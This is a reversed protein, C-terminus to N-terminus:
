GKIFNSGSGQAKIYEVLSVDPRFSLDWCPVKAALSTFFEMAFGMGAADWYPAFSCKLFKIVLLAGTLAQIANRRAHRLFFIKDLKVGNPAGFKAEGHWPTGYIWYQGDKNRVITRDDSLVAVGKQRDWLRAATSKGAGSEGAFLYGKGGWEIGCAHLIVGRGRALYNIMLLEMGPGFFPNIFQGDPAAFLLKVQDFQSPLVLFRRLDRHCYFIDIISETGKRYLSWIPQSTFTKDGLERKPTDHHLELQIDVPGEAVFPQYARSVEIECPGYNWEISTKIDGINITLNSPMFYNHNHDRARAPNFCLRAAVM